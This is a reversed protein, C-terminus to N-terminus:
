AGIGTSVNGGSIWQGFFKHGEMACGIIAHTIQQYKYEEGYM